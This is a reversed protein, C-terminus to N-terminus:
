VIGWGWGLWGAQVQAEDEDLQIARSAAQPINDGVTGTTDTQQGLEEVVLAVTRGEPIQEV